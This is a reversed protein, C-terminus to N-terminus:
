WNTSGGPNTPSQRDVSATARPWGNHANRTDFQGRNCVYGHPIAATRPWHQVGPLRRTGSPGTHSQLGMGFDTVILFHLTGASGGTPSCHSCSPNTLWSSSGRWDCKASTTTCVSPVDIVAIAPVSSSMRSQLGCGTTEGKGKVVIEPAGLPIATARYRNAGLRHIIVSSGRPNCDRSIASKSPSVTTISAGEPLTANPRVDHTDARGGIVAAGM